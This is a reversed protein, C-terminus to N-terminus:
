KKKAFVALIYDWIILYDKDDCSDYIYFCCEILNVTGYIIALSLLQSLDEM